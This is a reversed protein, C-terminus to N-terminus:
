PSIDSRSKNSLADVYKMLLFANTPFGSRLLVTNVTIWVLAMHWTSETEKKSEEM